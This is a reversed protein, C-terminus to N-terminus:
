LRSLFDRYAEERKMAYDGYKKNGATTCSSGTAYAAFGAYSRSVFPTCHLDSWRRMSALARMGAGFCRRLEFYDSGVMMESVEKVSMYPHPFAAFSYAILPQIDALCVEGAPGRKRGSEIDERFGTSWYSAALMAVALDSAGGPWARGESEVEMSVAEDALAEAVGAFRRRATEKREVQRWRGAIYEPKRCVVTPEACTPAAVDCTPASENTGCDERVEFSHPSQGPHAKYMMMSLLAAALSM